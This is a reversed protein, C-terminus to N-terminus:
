KQVFTIIFIVFCKLFFPTERLKQNNNGGSSFERIIDMEGSFTSELIQM